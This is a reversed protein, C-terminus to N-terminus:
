KFIIRVLEIVILVILLQQIGRLGNATTEFISNLCSYIEDNGKSQYNQNM